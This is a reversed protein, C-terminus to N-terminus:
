IRVQIHSRDPRRASEELDPMEGAKSSPPPGDTEFGCVAPVLGMPAERYPKVFPTVLVVGVM